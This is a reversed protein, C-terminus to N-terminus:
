QQQKKICFFRNKILAEFINKAACVNNPTSNYRFFSGTYYGKVTICGRYEGIKHQADPYFFVLTIKGNDVNSKRVQYKGVTATDDKYPGLMVQRIAQYASTLSINPQM